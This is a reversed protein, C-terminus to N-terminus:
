DRQDYDIQSSPPKGLWSISARKRGGQALSALYGSSDLGVATQGYPTYELYMGTKGQFTAQAGETTKFSYLRDAQCYYHAALWREILELLSAGMSVGNDSAYSSIADVLASATQIFPVLSTVGDYDGEINDGSDTQTTERLLDKVAQSNTRM